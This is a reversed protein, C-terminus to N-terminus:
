QIYEKYIAVPVLATWGCFDKKSPMGYAVLDPAYNEWFTGTAEFVEAVSAYVKAALHRALDEQGNASLGKLVMYVTPAWVGGLWYDGWGVYDPDSASLAPLPTRRYFENPDSLHSIFQELRDEPVVEGLLAWYMGIHRRPIREGFGLDYYFGDSDDWALTNLATKVKGHIEEYRAVDQEEGILNAIRKLNVAYLAMQSSFDVQRGQVNWVGNRTRVYERVFFNLKEEDTTKLKALELGLEHQSWKNGETPEWDHPERPINDMGLGMTDGYFLDDEMMYTTVHFEFNKKLYPYVQKLRDLDKSVEFIELEAFALLPPNISVPHTKPWLPEGSGRYERCIFGDEEMRGYFNDLAQYVPLEDLHYKCYCCMMCTDWLFINENFAADIFPAKFFAETDGGRIKMKTLEIAKKYMAESLEKSVTPNDPTATQEPTQEEQETCSNLVAASSIIGASLAVNRTFDRRNM